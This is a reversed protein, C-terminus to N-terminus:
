QPQGNLGGLAAREVANWDPEKVMVFCRDFEAELAQCMSFALEAREASMSTHRVNERTRTAISLKRAFERFIEASKGGGCGM